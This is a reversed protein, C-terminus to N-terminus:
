ESPNRLRAMLAEMEVRENASRMRERLAKAHRKRGELRDLCWQAAAHIMEVVHAVRRPNGGVLACIHEATPASGFGGFASGGKVRPSYIYLADWLVDDSKPNVLPWSICIDQSQFIKFIRPRPLPTQPYTRRLMQRQANYLVDLAERVALSDPLM